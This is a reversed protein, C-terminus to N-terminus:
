SNVMGAAKMSLGIKGDDGIQKVLVKVSDGEKVYKEIDKPGVFADTIESVHVLGQVGGKIEVFVGFEKISVAVGDYVEGVVPVFVLDQIM